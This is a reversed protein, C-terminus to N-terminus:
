VKSKSSCYSVKTNNYAVLKPCTDAPIMPCFWVTCFPIASKSRLYAEGEKGEWGESGEICACLCSDRKYVVVLITM